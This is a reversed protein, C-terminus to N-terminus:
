IQENKTARILLHQYQSPDKVNSDVVILEPVRWTDIYLSGNILRGVNFGGFINDTFLVGSMTQAIYYAEAQQIREIHSRFQLEIWSITLDNADCYEKLNLWSKTDNTQFACQNNSLQSVWTLEEFVRTFM